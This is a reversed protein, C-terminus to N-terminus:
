PINAYVQNQIRDIGYELVDKLKRSSIQRDYFYNDRRDDKEKHKRCAVSQFPPLPLRQDKRFQRDKECKKVAYKGSNGQGSKRRPYDIHLMEAMQVIRKGYAGNTCVLMKGNKPIVYGIVAEVSFSIPLLM